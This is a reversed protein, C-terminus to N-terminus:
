DKPKDGFGGTTAPREVAHNADQPSSGPVRGRWSDRRCARLISRSAARFGRRRLVGSRRCLPHLLRGRIERTRISPLRCPLRVSEGTGAFYAGRSAFAARATACLGGLRDAVPEPYGMTRFRAQIRARSISPFFDELDMKLLVRKGVHPGAFTKISHGKLFGHVAPHPPIKELIGTLIRRQLEKLRPRPAEILRISGSQKQLVRYHYHALPPAGKGCLGRLDAFWELDNLSIQLWAALAATTEIPPIDWSGAARAPQMTPSATTWSHIRLKKSVRRFGSDRLLFRVVDRRRPRTREPPFAKILRRAVRPIWAWPGLMQTAREVVAELDPEGALFAQALAHLPMIRPPPAWRTWSQAILAAHSRPSFDRSSINTRCSAGPYGRLPKISSSLGIGGLKSRDAATPMM